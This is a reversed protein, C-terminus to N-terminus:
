VVLVAQEPAIGVKVQSGTNFGIFDSEVGDSFIVGNAPMNSEIKLKKSATIFGFSLGVQTVNSLFPERVVFVLRREEWSIPKAQPVPQGGLHSNISSTMNYVSSLWGTSGAGTSVIIGSSSQNESKKGFSLNYRSSVHTASGIYFDNFALMEQGDHTRMHAMTIKKSHYQNKILGALGQKVNQQNFPLLVGDYQHENPNVALMPRGGVYKATNAVLGDQGVVVILDTESFIYTPLFSRFVVKCKLISEISQRTSKLAQYFVDHEWQYQQFDGGSREIYFQAQAKSNFRNVLQELRTEDRILIAREYEM